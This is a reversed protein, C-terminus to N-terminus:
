RRRTVNALRIAHKFVKPIATVGAEYRQYQRTSCGFYSATVDQTWGM